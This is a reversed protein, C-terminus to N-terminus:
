QTFGFVMFVNSKSMKINHHGILHSILGFSSVPEVFTPVMVVQLKEMMYKIPKGKCSLLTPVTQMCALHGM